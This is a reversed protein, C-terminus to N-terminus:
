SLGADVARELAAKERTFYEKASHLQFGLEDGDDIVLMEPNEFFLMESAVMLSTKQLERAESESIYEIRVRDQGLVENMIGAIDGFTLQQGALKVKRGHYRGSGDQLVETVALGIDAPDLLSQPTNPPLVTRIVGESALYPFIRQALPDVFSNLLRPVQLITWSEFGAETVSREVAIKSYRYKLTPNQASTGRLEGRELRELNPVSSQVVHTIGVDRCVDVVNQGHMAEGDPDTFVPSVNVFAATCGQAAAVMSDRSDFDGLFVKAGVRRLAKASASEPDRAIAHVVLGAKLLGRAVYGGQSGTAGTVFVTHPM